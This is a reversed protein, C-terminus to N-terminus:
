LSAGPATDSKQDKCGNSYLVGIGGWRGGDPDCFESRRRKQTIEKWFHSVTPVWPNSPDSVIDHFVVLGGRRVLPSYLEYDRRVGEESHDGDVFLLDV